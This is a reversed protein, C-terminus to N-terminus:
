TQLIDWNRIAWLDYLEVPFNLGLEYPNGNHTLETNPQLDVDINGAVSGNFDDMPSFWVTGEISFIFLFDESSEIGPRFDIDGIAIICGNGAISVKHPPFTINGKAFITQGNLNITYAKVPQKFILDGAVYLTDALFSEIEDGTNIIQLDGNRYLPGIDSDPPNQLDLILDAYAWNPDDDVDDLYEGDLYDADPWADDFTANIKDGHITGHETLGDTNAYQVNGYVDSNSQVTVDGNSTIANEFFNLRTLESIITTTSSPDNVSTAVSTVRHKSYGVNEITVSVQQDNILFPDITHPYNVDVVLENESLEWYANEFGAEASYYELMNKEHVKGHKIGTNVYALIAAIIFSGILLLIMSM